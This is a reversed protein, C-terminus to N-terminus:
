KQKKERERERTEHNQAKFRFCDGYYDCLIHGSWAPMIIENENKRRRKRRSRWIYGMM